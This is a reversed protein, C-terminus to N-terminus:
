ARVFDTTGGTCVWTQFGNARLYALLEVMPRYALKTYPVGFTRHKETKFFERVDADFRAQTTNGHTIGVLEVIAKEGRERLPSFDKALLAKVFPKEKLGEMKAAMKELRALAFIVEHLPQEPWLTGDNDFTAVRDEAPVFDPGGKKTVRAVFDRIAKK